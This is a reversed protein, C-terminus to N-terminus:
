SNIEKLYPHELAEQASIRKEPEKELMRKLL